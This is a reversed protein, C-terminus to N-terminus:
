TARLPSEIGEAIAELSERYDQGLSSGVAEATALLLKAIFSRDDAAITLVEEISPVTQRPRSLRFVEETVIRKWGARLWAALRLTLFLKFNSQNIWEFVRLGAMWFYSPELHENQLLTKIITVVIRDLEALSAPKENWHDLVPKGPFRAQSDARWPPKLSRWRRRSLSTQWPQVNIGYALIADKAVQETASDFPGHKDLTPM